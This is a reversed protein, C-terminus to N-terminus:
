CFPLCARLVRGHQGFGLGFAVGFGVGSFIDAAEVGAGLEGDEHAERQAHLDIGLLNNRPGDGVTVGDVEAIGAIEAAGDALNGARSCTSPRRAAVTPGM